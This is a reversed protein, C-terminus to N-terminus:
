DVLYVKEEAMVAEKEDEVPMINQLFLDIKANGQVSKQGKVERFSWQALLNMQSLHSEVAWISAKVNPCLEPLDQGHLPRPGALILSRGSLHLFSQSERQKCYGLELSFHLLLVNQEDGEQDSGACEQDWFIEFCLLEKVPM